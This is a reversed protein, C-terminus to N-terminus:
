RSENTPWSFSCAPQPRCSSFPRTWRVGSRNDVDEGDDEDEDEDQEARWEQYADRATDYLDLPTMSDVAQIGEETISWVGSKKKMFGARSADVTVYNLFKWWRPTREKGAIELEGATLEVNAPLWDRVELRRM